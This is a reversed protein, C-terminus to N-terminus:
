QVSTVSNHFVISESLACLCNCSEFDSNPYTSTISYENPKVNVITVSGDPNQTGSVERGALTSGQYAGAKGPDKVISKDAASNDM